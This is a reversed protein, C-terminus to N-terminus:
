APVQRWREPHQLASARAPRQATPAAFRALTSWIPATGTGCGSNRLAAVAAAVAGYIWPSNGCPNPPTHTAALHTGTTPTRQLHRSTRSTSKPGCNAKGCLNADIAYGLCDVGLLDVYGQPECGCAHGRGRQFRRASGDGRGKEAAVCKHRRAHVRGPEDHAPRLQVEHWLPQAVEALPLLREQRRGDEVAAAAFLGSTRPGAICARRAAARTWPAQKRPAPMGATVAVRKCGGGGCGESAWM